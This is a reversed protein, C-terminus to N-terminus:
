NTMIGLMELQKELLLIHNMNQALIVIAFSGTQSLDDCNLPFISNLRNGAFLVPALQKSLTAFSCPHTKLKIFKWFPIAGIKKEINQVIIHVYSSGNFRANNEIPFVGEDSVIYDIGIIGCYGSAAMHIVIKLSTQTITDYIDAAPKLGKLNGVHVMGQKCEQDILGLHTIKGQRDIVWQDNPSSYVELFPEILVIKEGSAVISQYLSSLDDGQTKYLSMGSLGLTGRIIVTTHTSLYGKILSEMQQFNDSGNSQITFIAGEVVPIDLQQCLAKFVAKDNYKLTESETAGFLEASLINAAMVEQTTSFWPTYIPKKDLQKLIEKVPEPNEIILESLTSGTAPQKYEVIYDTGMGHSRLWQHYEKDLRGRLIVIDDSCAAALARDCKSSVATHRTPYQSFNDAGYVIVETEKNSILNRLSPINTM